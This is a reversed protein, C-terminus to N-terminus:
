QKQSAFIIGSTVSMRSDLAPGFDFNEMEPGLIMLRMLKDCNEPLNRNRLNTTVLNQSSFVMEVDATHIPHTLAVSALEICEWEPFQAAHYTAILSFLDATSSIPYQQAKIIQKLLQWEEQFPSIKSM